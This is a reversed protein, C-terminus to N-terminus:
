RVGGWKGCHGKQEGGEKKIRLPAPLIMLVREKVQAFSFPDGRGKWGPRLRKKTTLSVTAGKPARTGL